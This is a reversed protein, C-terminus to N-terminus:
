VTLDPPDLAELYRVGTPLYGLKLAVDRRAVRGLSRGWSPDDVLSAMRAAAEPVSPDAWIQGRWEPYQGERVAILDYPVPLSNGARMFDMNGSYATAVVPKGLFMAEAMGRGFGESRHLSLFCDSCRVLSKVEDDSMTADILVVRPGASSAMLRIRAAAEEDAASGNMKIALCVDASPRAALLLRFAEIAAAPNKREAYSRLDFFFLFCYASDPIGFHKRAFMAGLGVECPLNQLCVPAAVFGDLSRQVFVSPAWVEDFRALEKRWVDPFAPLEWAPYVINRAGRPMGGLKSLAGEIEDGNVFFVNTRGPERSM